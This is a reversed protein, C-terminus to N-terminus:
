DFVEKDLWEAKCDSCYLHFEDTGYKYPNKCENFYYPCDLYGAAISDADSDKKSLLNIIEERNTM